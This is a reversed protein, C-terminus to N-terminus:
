NPGLMGQSTDKMDGVVKRLVLDGVQFDKNRIKYNYHKAM